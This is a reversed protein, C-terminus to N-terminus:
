DYVRGHVCTYFSYLYCLLTRAEDATPLKENVYHRLRRNGNRAPALTVIRRSVLSQYSAM